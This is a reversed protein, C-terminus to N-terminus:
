RPSAPPRREGGRPTRRGRVAASPASPGARLRGQRGSSHEAWRVTVKESAVRRELAAPDANRCQVRSAGAALVALLGGTVGEATIGDATGWM